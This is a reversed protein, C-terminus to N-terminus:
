ATLESLLATISCTSRAIGDLEQQRWVALLAAAQIHSVILAVRCPMHRCFPAVDLSHLAQQLFASLQLRCVM